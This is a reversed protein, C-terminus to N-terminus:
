LLIFSESLLSDITIMVGGSETTTLSSSLLGRLADLGCDEKGASSASALFSIPGM